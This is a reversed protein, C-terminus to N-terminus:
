ARLDRLGLLPGIFKEYNRWREVSNKYIKQRVQWTSATMVPRNTKYFELCREDWELGLFELIKRSWGEQDAVLQEYPVDLLTGAPLAGRWHAVLRQHERYYYALESLDTTFNMAPSFRQFYCSLCTDIPDRQVYIMRANPFVLHVLGLHDSNFPSKDVVRLADARSKALAGLYGEALKKTVRADPPQQRLVTAHKRAAFGWYELEGAGTALPHSAIIQEVLTTGARPMGVVLVPLASDSAGEKARSLTERTYVRILDDVFGRRSDRDYPEGATRQLENARRYSRFARTFEGIDDYYKGIAYLINAEGLPVLGSAVSAEAGRLWASDASTMRRLGALGVWAAPAKPDTELARGFLTEADAFRGERTEIEAMALLAEASRPSARLAKEVLARAEALRGQVFLTTALSIQADLLTPQLKLARRLPMESEVLRGTVRLHTGLNCQADAYNARIGIARRFQTEAEHYRGLNTLAVGLNNCAVANRPEFSLLEEYCSVAEAYAGKDLYEQGTAILTHANGSARRSTAAQATEPMPSNAQQPSLRLVLAQTLEDVLQREIGKELLRWKFSNALKARKFVNLKLPRTKQDVRQLFRQLFKQLQQSESGPGREKHRTRLADPASHVVFDDALATGVETAERANLWNFVM